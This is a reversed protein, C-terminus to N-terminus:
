PGSDPALPLIRLRLLGKHSVLQPVVSHLLKTGSVFFAPGSVSGLTYVLPISFPVLHLLHTHGCTQTHTSTHGRTHAHTDTDVHGHTRTWSDTHRYMHTHGHTHVHTQAHTHTHTHAHRLTTSVWGINCPKSSGACHLVYLM